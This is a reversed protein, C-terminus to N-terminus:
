FSLIWSFIYNWNAKILMSKVFKGCKQKKRNRRNTKVIGEDEPNTIWLRRDPTSYIKM